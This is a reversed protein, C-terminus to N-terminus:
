VITNANAHPFPMNPIPKDLFQCLKEWGDGNTIDMELYNPNNKFYTTVENNYKRYYHLYTEKSFINTEFHQNYLDIKHKRREENPHQAHENSLWNYVSKWWKDEDRTTLIYKSDLIHKDLIKYLSNTNFPRDKFFDYKDILDFLLNYDKNFALKVLKNSAKYKDFGNLKTDKIYKDPSYIKDYGLIEWADILSSTATKNLGICFVKM